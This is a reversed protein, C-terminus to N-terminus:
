QTLTAPKGNHLRRGRSHKRKHSRQRRIRAQTHDHRQQKRQQKRRLVRRRRRSEEVSVTTEPAKKGSGQEPAQSVANVAGRRLSTMTTVEVDALQVDEPQVGSAVANRFEEMGSTEAIRRWQLHNQPQLRRLNRTNFNNDAFMTSMSQATARASANTTGTATPSSQQPNMTSCKFMAGEPVFVAEPIHHYCEQDSGSEEEEDSHEPPQKRPSRTRQQPKPLKDLAWMPPAASVHQPRKVGQLRMSRFAHAELDANNRMRAHGLMCKFSCFNGFFRDHAHNDPHPTILMVPATTFTRKCHLCPDPSSHPLEVAQEFVSPTVHVNSPAVMRFKHNTGRIASSMLQVTSGVTRGTIRRRVEDAARIASMTQAQLTHQRSKKPRMKQVRELQMASEEEITPRLSTM